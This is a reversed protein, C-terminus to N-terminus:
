ATRPLGGYRQGECKNTNVSLILPILKFGLIVIYYTDKQATRPPTTDQIEMNVLLVLLILEPWIQCDAKCMNSNVMRALM